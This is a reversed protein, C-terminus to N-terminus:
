FYKLVNSLLYCYEEDRNSPDGTLFDAHAMCGGYCVMWYKCESCIGNRLQTSRNKKLNAFEQITVKKNLFFHLSPTITGDPQITISKEGCMCSSSYLNGHAYDLASEIIAGGVIIQSIDNLSEIIKLYVSIQRDMVNKSNRQYQPYELGIWGVDCSECSKIFEIITEPDDSVDLITQIQTIVSHKKCDDSIKLLNQINKAKPSSSIDISYSLGDIRPIIEQLKKIDSTGTQLVIKLNTNQSRLHDIIECTIPFTLPSLPEGGIIEVVANVNKQSQQFLLDLQKKIKLPDPEIFCRDIGNNYCYKCNINCYYSPIVKIEIQHCQASKLFPIDSFDRLLNDSM